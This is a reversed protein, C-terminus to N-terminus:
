PRLLIIPVAGPPYATTLYQFPLIENRRAVPRFKSAVDKLDWQLTNKIDNFILNTEFTEPDIVSFYNIPPSVREPCNRWLRSERQSVKLRLTM